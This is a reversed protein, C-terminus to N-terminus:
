LLKSKWTLFETKLLLTFVDDSRISYTLVWNFIGQGGFCVLWTYGNFNYTQHTDSVSLVLKNTWICVIKRTGMSFHVAYKDNRGEELTM